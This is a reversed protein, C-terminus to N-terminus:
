QDSREVNHEVEYIKNQIHKLETLFEILEDNRISIDWIKVPFRKKLSYLSMQTLSNSIKRLEIKSHTDTVEAVYPACKGCREVVSIFENFSERTFAHYGSYRQKKEDLVGFYDMAIIEECTSTQHYYYVCVVENGCHCRLFIVADELRSSILKQYM